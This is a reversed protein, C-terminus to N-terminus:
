VSQQHQVARGVSRINLITVYISVIEWHSESLAKRKKHKDKKDKKNKKGKHKKSHKDKKNSKSKKSKKKKRDNSSSSSSNSTSSSKSSNSSSDDEEEDKQEGADDEVAAAASGSGSAVQQLLHSGARPKSSRVLEDSRVTGRNGRFGNTQLAVCFVEGLVVDSRRNAPLTNREIAAVDFGRAGWVSLPLWEGQQQYYESHSETAILKELRTV